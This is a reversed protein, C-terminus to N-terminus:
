AEVEEVHIIYKAPVPETITILNSQIPTLHSSVSYLFENVEEVFKREDGQYQDSIIGCFANNSATTDM